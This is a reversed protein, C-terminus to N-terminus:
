TTGAHGPAPPRSGPSGAHGGRAWRSVLWLALLLLLCLAALFYNVWNEPAQAANWLNVAVGALTGSIVILVTRRATSRVLKSIPFALLLLAWALQLYNLGHGPARATTWIDWSVLVLLLLLLSLAATASSMRRPARVPSMTGRFTDAAYGVMRFARRPAPRIQPDHLIAPLEAAWERYREERTDQPLRHCARRVLYEGLRLLQGEGRM